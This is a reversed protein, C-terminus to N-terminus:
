RRGGVEGSKMTRGKGGWPGFFIPKVAAIM